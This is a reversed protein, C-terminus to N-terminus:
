DKLGYKTLIAEYSEMTKVKKLAENFRKLLEMSDPYEKSVVLKLESVSYAKLLTGFNDVEDPFEKKILAWGVLENLPM